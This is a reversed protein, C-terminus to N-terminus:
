MEEMVEVGKHPHSAPRGACPARFELASSGKVHRSGVRPSLDALACSGVPTPTSGGGTGSEHHNLPDALQPSPSSASACLQPAGGPTTEWALPAISRHTTGRM